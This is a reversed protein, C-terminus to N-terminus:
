QCSKRKMFDIYAHLIDKEKHSRNEIDIPSLIKMECSTTSTNQQGENSTVTSPAAGGTETEHKTNTVKANAELEVDLRYYVVM